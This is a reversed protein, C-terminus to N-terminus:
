TESVLRAIARISEETIPRLILIAEDAGAESSRTSTRASATRRWRTARSAIDSHPRKAADPDLEVLM